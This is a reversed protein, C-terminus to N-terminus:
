AGLLTVWKGTDSGDGTGAIGYYLKGKGAAQANGTGTAVGDITDTGSGFITTSNAGDNRVFALAGPFAFPLLCSDAASAVTAVENVGYGLQTAGTKGGGALATLGNQAAPNPLTGVPLAGAQPSQGNAQVTDVGVSAVGSISTANPLSAGTVLAMGRTFYGETQTAM